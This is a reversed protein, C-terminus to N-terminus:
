FLETEAYRWACHSQHYRNVHQMPARSGQRWLAHPAADTVMKLTATTADRQGQSKGTEASQHAAEQVRARAYTGANLAALGRAGMVHKHTETTVARGGSWWDTGAYRGAIRDEAPRRTASIVTRWRACPAADTVTKLTATTAGKGEQWCETEACLQAAESAKARAYTGANLAAHGRADTGSSHTRIM